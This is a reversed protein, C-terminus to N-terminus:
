PFLKPIVNMELMCSPEVTFITPINLSLNYVLSEINEIRVKFPKGVVGEIIVDNVANPLTSLPNLNEGRERYTYAM